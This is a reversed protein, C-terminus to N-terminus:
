ERQRSVELLQTLQRKQHQVELHAYVAEVVQQGDGHLHTFNM